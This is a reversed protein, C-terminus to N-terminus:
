RRASRPARAPHRSVCDAKRSNSWFRIQTAWTNRGQCKHPAKPRSAKVPIKRLRPKASAHTAHHKAAHLRPCAAKDGCAKAGSDAAAAVAQEVQPGGRGPMSGLEGQVTPDRAYIDSPFVLGDPGPAATLYLIYVPVPAPLDIRQDPAGSTKFKVPRQFLWDALKGPHQVRVCGSSDTREADRFLGRESTDHLYIGLPNPLMFKVHGMMNDQGPRQRVRLPRRGDAVASWDVSDSNLVAASPSWDSLVEFHHDRLYGPGRRLVAPALRDRVLDPPVNWYPNLQAYRVLGVMSPTPLSPKGVVVRMSDQPKGDAYLWLTERAPNVLIFRQGLDPPLARARELNAEIRRTTAGEDGRARREGLATRLQTYILNMKQASGLADALSPARLVAELAARAETPPLRVAPDIFQLGASRVPRHLDVAYAAYARSLDIEARALSAPRRGAHAVELAMQEPRYVAPDLNDQGSQRLVEILQMAEPRVAAGDLWLPHFNHARYFTAVPDAPKHALADRVARGIPGPDPQHTVLRVVLPAGM